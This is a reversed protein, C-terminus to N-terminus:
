SLLFYQLNSDPSSLLSVFARYLQCFSSIKTIIKHLNMVRLLVKWMIDVSDNSLSWWPNLHMLTDLRSSQATMNHSVNIGRWKFAVHKVWVSLPLLPLWRQSDYIPFALYLCRYLIWYEGNQISFWTGQSFLHRVQDSFLRATLETRYVHKSDACSDTLAGWNFGVTRPTRTFGTIYAQTEGTGANEHTNEHTCKYSLGSPPLNSIHSFHWWRM